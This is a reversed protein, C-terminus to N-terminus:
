SYLWDLSTLHSEPGRLRIALNRAQRWPFRLHYIRGLRASARQVRAARQRRLREYASFACAPDDSSVLAEALTGADEIALGAGQALFPLIPHAADGILVVRGKSWRPLAPLSFLSWIRWSAESEIMARPTDHWQRVSAFLTDLDASRDWGQEARGGETVVVVNLAEGGRVPYHVLHAGPGLWLGVANDSFPSPLDRMPLLTRWATHNAFLPEVGPEIFRRSASWLGDAGILLTGLARDHSSSSLTVSDVTEDMSLADFGRELNVDALSGTIEALCAHLDARHLVLYPAGYRAEVTRGLPIQALPKGSLADFIRVSEPCVATKRIADLAGLSRLIRTANPGLQIGAGTEDGGKSREVLHVPVNQRGLALAATLGGIGGGLILIPNTATSGAM